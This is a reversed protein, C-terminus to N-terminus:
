RTGQSRPKGKRGRPTRRVEPPEQEAPEDEAPLSVSHGMRVPYPDSLVRRFRREPVIVSKGKEEIERAPFLITDHGTALLAKTWVTWLHSLLLKVMVRQARLHIRMKEGPKKPDLDGRTAYKDKALDYANRYEGDNSRLLSPGIRGLAIMRATPSWNSRQGAVHRPAKGDEVSLGAFKWLSSIHRGPELNVALMIEMLLTEGIGKVGKAWQGLAEWADHEKCRGILIGKIVAEDAELQAYIKEIYPEVVRNLRKLAEIHNHVMIRAKQVEIFATVTAM